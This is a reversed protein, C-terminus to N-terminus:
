TGLAVGLVLVLTSPPVTGVCNKSSKKIAMDCQILKLIACLSEMYAHTICKCYKGYHTLKVLVSNDTKKQLPFKSTM